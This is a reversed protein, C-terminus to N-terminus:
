LSPVYEFNLVKFFFVLMLCVHYYFAATKLRKSANIVETFAKVFYLQDHASGM